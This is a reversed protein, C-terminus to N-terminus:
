GKRGASEGVKQNKKILHLTIDLRTSVDRMDRPRDEKRLECCDMILQSLTVPLDPVLEHPPASNSRADVEIRKQGTQGVNMLTRFWKGTLAWYMTAGLNFVDTRQDIPLRHVQEPAMFDPTGQIRQKTHGIPCSQGFDIIKVGKRSLLINNPKIDAHVYGVKHMAHLGESVDLFLQVLKHLESPRHDELRVGDVFEMLIFLEATKLWRRIRVIELCKRLTPHDLKQAVAFEGEAQEIFRDEAPGHRVVHKLAVRRQKSKDFAEYLIAGAGKGIREIIEYGPLQAFERSM